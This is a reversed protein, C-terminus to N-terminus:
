YEKILRKLMLYDVWVAPRVGRGKQDLYNGEVNRMGAKGIFMQTNEDTGSTRVWYYADSDTTCFIGQRIAYPTATARLQTEGLRYQDFEENSLIFVNGRTPNGNSRGTKPNKSTPIEVTQLALREENQFAVSTFKDRIWTRIDSDVWDCKKRIHHYPHVDLCMDAWLLVKGDKVDLIQWSIKKKTGDKEYPYSGFEVKSGVPFSGESQINITSAAPTASITTNSNIVVESNAPVVKHPTALIQARWGLQSVFWMVAQKAWAQDLLYEKNLKSIAKAQAASQEKEDTKSVSMLDLYVGSELAMKVVRREKELTPAYDALLSVFASKQKIIEFGHTCIIYRFTDEVTKFNSTQMEFANGCFPCETVMKIANWESYCSSCKQYLM